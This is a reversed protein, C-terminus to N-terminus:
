NVSFGGGGRGAGGAGVGTASSLFRSSNVAAIALAFPFTTDIINWSTHM